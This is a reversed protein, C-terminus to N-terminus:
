RICACRSLEVHSAVARICTHASVDLIHKAIPGLTSTTPPRMTSGAATRATTSQTVAGRDKVERRDRRNICERWSWRTPLSHRRAYTSVRAHSFRSCPTACRPRRAYIWARHGVASPTSSLSASSHAYLTIDESVSTLGSQPALPLSFDDPLKLSAARHQHVSAHYWIALVLCQPRAAPTM